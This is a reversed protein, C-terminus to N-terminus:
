SDSDSGRERILYDEIRKADKIITSLTASAKGRNHEMSMRFSFERTDKLESDTLETM